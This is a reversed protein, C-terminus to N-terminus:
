AGIRPPPPWVEGDQPVPLPSGSKAAEWFRRATNLFMDAEHPSSFARKPIIHAVLKDVFLFLYASDEEISKLTTWAVKTENVSTKESLWEPSIDITHECLLGPKQNAFRRVKKVVRGKTPPLFRVIFFLLIPLCVLLTWQLLGRTLWVEVAVWSGALFVLSIMAFLAYMLLPRIPYKHHRYYISFHWFDDPTLDFTVQM